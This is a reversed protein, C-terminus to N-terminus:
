IEPLAQCRTIEAAIGFGKQNPNEEVRVVTAHCCVWQRGYPSIEPPMLLVLEIDTSEEIKADTFFFLGQSSIDRSEAPEVPAGKAKKVSVPLRQQVRRAGRKERKTEM